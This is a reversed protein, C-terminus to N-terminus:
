FPCGFFLSPAYSNLGTVNSNIVAGTGAVWEAGGTFAIDQVTVDKLMQIGSACSLTAQTGTLDSNIYHTSTVSDIISLAGIAHTASRRFSIFMEATGGSGFQLTGVVTLADFASWGNGGGNNFALLSAVSKGNCTIGTSGSGRQTIALGSFTGGAGLTVVNCTLAGTVTGTFGTFNTSSPIATTTVSVAGGGSSANFIASDASTPASAGAAGGSTASWHTTSSTDWAGTGGVWYRTAM